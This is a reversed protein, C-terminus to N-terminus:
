YPWGEHRQELGVGLFPVEKVGGVEGRSRTRNTGDRVYMRFEM